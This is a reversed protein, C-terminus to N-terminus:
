PLTLLKRNALIREGTRPEAAALLISSDSVSTSSRCRCQRSAAGRRARRVTAASARPPPPPPPLPTRAAETTVSPAKAAAVDAAEATTNPAEAATMDTPAKPPRTPPRQRGCRRVPCKRGRSRRPVQPENMRRPAYQRPPYRLADARLSGRPRNRRRPEVSGAVPQRCRGCRQLPLTPARGRLPGRPRRCDRWRCRPKAIASRM